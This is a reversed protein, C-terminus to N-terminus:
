HDHSEVHTVAAPFDNVHETVDNITVVSYFQSHYSISADANPHFSVMAMLGQNMFMADTPEGTMLKRSFEITTIGDFATSAVQLFSTAGGHETDPITGDIRPASQAAVTAGFGFVSALFFLLLRM